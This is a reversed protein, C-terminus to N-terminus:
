SGIWGLQHILMNIRRRRLSVALLVLVVLAGLKTDDRVMDVALSGAVTLLVMARQAAAVVAIRVPRLPLFFRRCGSLPWLCLLQWQHNTTSAHQTHPQTADEVSADGTVEVDPCIGFRTPRSGREPAQHARQNGEVDNQPTWNEGLLGQEGLWAVVQEDLLLGPEGMGEVDGSDSERVVQRPSCKGLSRAVARIGRAAVLWEVSHPPTCQLVRGYWKVAASLKKANGEFCTSNEIAAVEIGVHEQVQDSDRNNSAGAAAEHLLVSSPACDGNHQVPFDEEIWVSLAWRRRHAPLVEHLLVRSRFMVLTGGKPCIDVIKRASNGEQDTTDAGVYARLAGGDREMDWDPDNLYLILTFCRRDSLTNGHNDRHAVYHAGDPGYSAVMCNRPVTLVRLPHHEQLLAAAGRLISVARNLGGRSRKPEDEGRSIEDPEYDDESSGSSATENGNDDNGVSSRIWCVEDRRVESPQGVSALEGRQRLMELELRAGRLEWKTLLPGELVVLDDEELAQMHEARLATLLNDSADEHCLWAPTSVAARLGDAVSLVWPTRLLQAMAIPPLIDGRKPNTLWQWLWEFQRDFHEEVHGHSCDTRLLLLVAAAVTWHSHGILREVARARNVGDAIEATTSTTVPRGSRGRSTETASADCVTPGGQVSESEDEPMHQKSQPPQMGIPTWFLTEAETGRETSDSASTSACMNSVLTECAKELSLYSPAITNRGLQVDIHEQPVGYVDGESGALRRAPCGPRSCLWRCELQEKQERQERQESRVNASYLRQSSTRSTIPCIDGAGDRNFPSLLYGRERSTVPICLPCVLARTGDVAPMQCNDINGGEANLLGDCHICQQVGCHPPRRGLLAACQRRDVSLVEGKAVARVARLEYHYLIGTGPDACRKNKGCNRSDGDIEISARLNPRCSHAVTTTKRADKVAAAGVLAECFVLAHCRYNRLAKLPCGRRRPRRQLNSASLRDAALSHRATDHAARISVAAVFLQKRTMAARWGASTESSGESCESETDRADADSDSRTSRYECSPQPAPEPDLESEPQLGPEKAWYFPGYTMLFEEGQKIPKTTRYFVGEGRQFMETNIDTTENACNVYRLNNPTDNELGTGYREGDIWLMEGDVRPRQPTIEWTYAGVSQWVTGRGVAGVYQGLEFDAPLDQAAFLGLGAGPLTSKRM